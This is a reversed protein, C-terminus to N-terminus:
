EDILLCIQEFDLTSTINFYIQFDFKPCIQAYQFHIRLWDLQYLHHHFIRGEDQVALLNNVITFVSVPDIDEVMVEENTSKM